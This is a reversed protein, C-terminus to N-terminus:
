IGVEGALEAPSLAYLDRSGSGAVEALMAAEPLLRACFSEALRRDTASALDSLAGKLLYHGGLTLAVSRLYAAAGAGRHSGHVQAALRSTAVAVARMATELARASRELGGADTGSSMKRAVAVTGAVENLLSRAARGGDDLKRGVLDGAQIGNTGEYIRTVRVDRWYQAVGTEEIYGAGGHVQIGLDAVESGADTCFGKAVPTLFAARAAWSEAGTAEAMDLSIATDLCIARAARTLTMMQLIMRRVDAHDLITGSGGEIGSRGQVRELAYATAAQTASEAVGVGQAAVGLRAHNMMTFMAALGRGPEGVLWGTAGDFHMAATPSGHMGLKKELSVPGLANRVGPRGNPDPLFKPVIFMSIGRTGAPSGPLRALVLHCINEALDHDGWSIFSKQGTIAHSGDENPEARCRLAGVDSGAQPETLNMTGTWAGSILHPLYLRRQPEDGHRELAGIQGQTMLPNLALALCASSMMEGVAMQLTVPLGMGGYDPAASIGVWGGDAIARYAELFGPPCRVVGNELEPPQRDGTRNLPALETESLKAAEGLIAACADDSADRFRETASVERYDLVSRLLFLISEVPARYTM